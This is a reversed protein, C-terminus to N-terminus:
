KAGTGKNSADKIIQYVLKEQQDSGKMQSFHFHAMDHSFMDESINCCAHIMLFGTKLSTQLLYSEHSLGDESINWCTHSM